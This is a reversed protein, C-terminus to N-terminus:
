DRIQVDGQYSQGALNERFTLSERALSNLTTKERMQKVKLRSPRPGGKSYVSPYQFCIFDPFFFCGEPIFLM